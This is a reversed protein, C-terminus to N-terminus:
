FWWRVGYYVAMCVAYLLALGLITPVDKPFRAAM